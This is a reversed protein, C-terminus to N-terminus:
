GGGQEHIGLLWPFPIFYLYKKQTESQTSGSFSKKPNKKSKKRIKGFIKGFEGLICPPSCQILCLVLNM